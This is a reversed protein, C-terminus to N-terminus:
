ATEFAQKCRDCGPKNVLGFKFLVRNTAKDNNNAVKLEVQTIMWSKKASNQPSFHKLFHGPIYQPKYLWDTFETFVSYLM